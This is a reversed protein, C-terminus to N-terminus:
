EINIAILGKTVKHVSLREGIVDHEVFKLMIDSVANDFAIKADPTLQIDLSEELREVVENVTSYLDINNINNQAKVVLADCVKVLAFEGMGDFLKLFEGTWGSIPLTIARM